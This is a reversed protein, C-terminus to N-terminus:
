CDNVQFLPQELKEMWEQFNDMHHESIPHIGFGSLLIHGCGQCEWQDGCWLKYPKWEEPHPDNEFAQLNSLLLRWTNGPRAGNVKPMREIFYVGQRKMRYFRQCKVCIPKM